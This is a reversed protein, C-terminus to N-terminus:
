IGTASAFLGDFALRERMLGMRASLGAMMSQFTQSDRLGALSPEVM